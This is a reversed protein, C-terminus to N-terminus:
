PLRLRYFGSSGTASTTISMVRDTPAAAYNTVVSEAGGRLQATHFVTCPQNAPINFTLRVQNGPMAEISNVRLDATQGLMPTRLRYLRMPGTMPVTAQMVRSDAAAAIDQVKQWIGGFAEASEISYTLNAAATFTLILHARDAALAISTFRVGSRADRPDTGARYEALNTLGDGDTDLAADAPNRPDLGNATEWSDPLGDGDSDLSIAQPGPTPTAASWNAPDNGFLTDDARQLSFGIGDAEAPWPAADSYRVREVLIYPVEEASPEGPRRLELDDSDNALKGRYPGLIAAGSAVQYKARFAALATPNNVPDFSVVLLYDGPEIVTGQPFDFDV